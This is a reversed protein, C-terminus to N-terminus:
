FKILGMQVAAITIFFVASGVAVSVKVILSLRSSKLDNVEKELEDFATRAIACASRQNDRQEFYREKFEESRVVSSDATFLADKLQEAQKSNERHLEKVEEELKEIKEKNTRDKVKLEALEVTTKELKEALDEIRM